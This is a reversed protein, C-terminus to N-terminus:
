REDDAPVGDLFALLEPDSSVIREVEEGGDCRCLVVSAQEAGGTERRWTGGADEWRLVRALPSTPAPGSM